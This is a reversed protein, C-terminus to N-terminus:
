GKGGVHPLVTLVIAINYVNFGAHVFVDTWIDGTREFVWGLAIGLVFLGPMGQWNVLDLHALMFLAATFVIALWRLEIGFLQVFISQVLGRFLFEELIPAIIVASVIMIILPVVAKEEMMQRLLPHGVIPTKQGFMMGIESALFIVGSVLCISALLTLVASRADALAHRPILGVRKLSRGAALPRIILYCAPPLFQAVYAILGLWAHGTTPAGHQPQTTAVHVGLTPGLLRVALAALAAGFIILMLVAFFDMAVWGIRRDPAEDFVHPSLRRRYLLIVLVLPSLFVTLIM